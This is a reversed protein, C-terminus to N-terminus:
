EYGLERAKVRAAANKDSKARLEAFGCSPIWAEIYDICRQFDGKRTRSIKSGLGAYKRTDKYLRHFFIRRYKEWELPDDGLIEYIRKRAASTISEQQTTTVEENLKLQEIENNINNISTNMGEINRSLGGLLAKQQKLDELIVSTDSTNKNVVEVTTGLIEMIEEYSKAM